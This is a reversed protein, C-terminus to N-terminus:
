NINVIWRWSAAPMFKDVLKRAFKLLNFDDNFYKERIGPHNRNHERIRHRCIPTMNYIEESDIRDLLMLDRELYMHCFMGILQTYMALTQDYIPKGYSYDPKETIADIFKFTFLQEIPNTNL